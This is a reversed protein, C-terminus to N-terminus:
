GRSWSKIARITHTSNWNGLEEVTSFGAALLLEKEHEVTLPTDYHYFVGDSLDQEERIRHLERRFCDEQEDTDAFYSGCVKTIKRYPFKATLEKLMAEILDIGTVQASPNVKFYEELELGAGCGLDLICANETEPLLSDTFAYFGSGEEVYQRMHEDYGDVRATFFDSMRELM